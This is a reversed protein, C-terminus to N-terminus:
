KQSVLYMQSKLGPVVQTVAYLLKRVLGFSPKQVSKKRVGSQLSDLGGGVYLSNLELHHMEINRFGAREHVYRLEGETYEHHHGGHFSVDYYDSVRPWNSYGLLMKLRVTLRVSNFTSDIVVGGPRLVRYIEQLLSKPSHAFHEIVDILYVCDISESEVPFRESSCDCEYAEIGAQAACELATNAGTVPFDLTIARGGLRAFFRPFIGRGTGIDLVTPTAKGKLFKLGLDVLLKHHAFEYDYFPYEVALECQNYERVVARLVDASDEYEPNGRSVWDTPYPVTNMM